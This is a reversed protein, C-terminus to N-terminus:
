TNVNKDGKIKKRIFELFEVASSDNIRNAYELYKKLNKEIIEKSSSSPVKLAELIESNTIEEIRNQSYKKHANTKKLITIFTFEKRRPVTGYTKTIKIKGELMKKAEDLFYKGKETIKYGTQANGFVWGKTKVCHLYVCDNVTKADPYEPFGILSFKKPFLKFTAVTIKDFTAEIKKLELYDIVFLILRDKDIPLYDGEFEVFEKIIEEDSKKHEIVMKRWRM